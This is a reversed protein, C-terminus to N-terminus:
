GATVTGLATYGTWVNDSVTGGTAVTYTQGSSISDSAYVFTSYTKEPTFFDLVNGDSDIVGITTDAAINGVSAAIVGANGSATVSQAMGSSGCAILTGGTVMFSVDYDLAANGNDTPGSVTVYGGSIAASGNSDLGDGYSNVHVTGGTINLLGKEGDATTANFGDDSATLYVTGGSQNIVNAEVGENSQSVTVAGGAITATYDAHIGDDGTAAVIAGDTITVDGNSHIADDACDFVFAGGTINVACDAKIGKASPDNSSSSGGSWDGGWARGGMGAGGGMGGSSVTFEGAGGGTTINFEGGSVNVATIAQIGDEGATITLTGDTVAIYGRSEDETNTSVIGDAEANVTVSGGTVVVSDKGKVGDNAANVTVSGSQIVLDDKSQIGNNFVANVTLSGEGLIYLDDKSFVTANPEESETDSYTFGAADSLVNETGSALWIVANKASKVYIPASSSSTLDVGNLVLTVNEESEVIVQGDSCSGEIVYAGKDTITVATGSASAGTGDVAAAGESFSITANSKGDWDDRLEINLGLAALADDTLTLDGSSSEEGGSVDSKETVATGTNQSTTDAVTNGSSACGSLLILCALSSALMAKWGWVASSIVGHLRRNKPNNNEM